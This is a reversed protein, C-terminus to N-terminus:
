LVTVKDVEPLDKNASIGELVERPSLPAILSILALQWLWGQSLLGLM